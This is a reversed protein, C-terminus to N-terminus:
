VLIFTKQLGTLNVSKFWSSNASCLEGMNKLESASMYKWFIFEAM